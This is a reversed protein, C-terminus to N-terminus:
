GGAVKVRMGEHLGAGSVEVNGNAFLGLDVKILSGDVTEVAYGGESLALLAEVPVTLVNDKHQSTFAVSVPAGDLKGIANPDNPTILVDVTPTKSTTGGSASDPPASAVTGVSSIKGTTHTGDPLVINV